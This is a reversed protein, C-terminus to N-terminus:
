SVPSGCNPCFREGSRIPNGCTTCYRAVAQTQADPSGAPPHETSFAEPPQAWPPTSAPTESASAGALRRSYGAIKSWYLFFCVLTPIATLLNLFPIVCTFNLIALTMGLTGAPNPEVPLGRERFERALSLSIRPYLFFPWFLHFFPLLLLWASNPAAARNRPACRLLTRRLSLVYFVAIVFFVLGFGFFVGSFPYPPGYTRWQWYWNQPGFSFAFM